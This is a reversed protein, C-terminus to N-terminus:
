RIIYCNKNSSIYNAIKDMAYLDMSEKFSHLQLEFVFVVIVSDLVEAMVGRHSGLLM